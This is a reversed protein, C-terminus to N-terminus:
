IATLPEFLKLYVPTINGQGWGRARPPYIYLASFPAAVVVVVTFGVIIM